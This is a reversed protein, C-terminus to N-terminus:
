PNAAMVPVSIPTAVEELKLLSRNVPNYIYVIGYLELQVLNFDVTADKTLSAAGNPFGAGEGRFGAPSFGGMNGEGGALMGGTGAQFFSDPSGIAAADRNIRVQRIEVPLPANGFETLLRNMHRQDIELRIRIPMRKAVALLANQNDTTPAPNLAERLQFGALPFNNSDVYRWNAPDLPNFSANTTPSVPPAGATATPQGQPGGAAVPQGGMGEDFGGGSAVGPVASGVIMVQGANGLAGKGIRIYEIQKVTANHRGEAGENTRKIIEMLNQLVWLDEQAYLVDLTSPDDEKATFGFHTTLIEQQNTPAWLVMSRDVPAASTGDARLMGAPQESVTGDRRANWKTGITTALKPLEDEIFDRYRRRLGDPITLALPTAVPVKEIPRLPKVADHFDQDFSAPWVLVGEQRRYQQEWGAAVELAYQRTLADIAANSAPNPHTAALSRLGGVGSYVSDIKSQNAQRQEELTGTSMYWSALSLVLIGGCMIWFVHPQIKGWLEKLQGM